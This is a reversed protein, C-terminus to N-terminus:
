LTLPSHSHSQQQSRNLSWTKGHRWAKEVQNLLKNFHPQYVSSIKSIGSLMDSGDVEAADGDSYLNLLGATLAKMQAQAEARHSDLEESTSAVLGEVRDLRM